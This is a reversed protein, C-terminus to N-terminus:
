PGTPSCATAQLTSDPATIWPTTFEFPFSASVQVGCAAASVSFVSPDATLGWAQTVAYNQIAVASGCTTTNVSGCRAAAQVARDLTTQTWLVRGTDMAGFVLLLFAPLLLGYEIAVVGRQGLHHTM